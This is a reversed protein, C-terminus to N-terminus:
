LIVPYDYQDLKPDYYFSGRFANPSVRFGIDSSDKEIRVMNGHVPFPSKEPQYGYAYDAWSWGPGLREDLFNDTSYYKDGPLNLIGKIWNSDVPFDPHMFMPNGMGQVISAGPRQHYRYWPISDGLIKLTTYFTFLKTNSAPTYYKDAEHSYLMSDLVPDFLAFGTFMRTFVPSEEILSELSVPAEAPIRKSTGCSSILLIALFMIINGIKLRYYLM